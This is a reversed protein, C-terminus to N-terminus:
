ISTPQETAQKELQYTAFKDEIMKGITFAQEYMFFHGGILEHFDVEGTFINKWSYLEDLKILDDKGVMITAPIPLTPLEKYQYNELSQFDARLIPEFFDLLEKNELLQTPLGGYSKVGEWFEDAPLHGINVHEHYSAPCKRSGLFVHIPLAEQNQTIRHLLMYTHLAGMSKGVMIYPEVLHPQIQKYLDDVIADTDTLLPEGYRDGRGPLELYVQQIDTSLSEKYKRWAYKEGGAHHLFIVRM